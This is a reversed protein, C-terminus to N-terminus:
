NNVCILDNVQELGTKSTEKASMITSYKFINEINDDYKIDTKFTFEYAKGVKLDYTSNITVMKREGQFEKLVVENFELDDTGHISEIHYTRTFYCSSDKDHGCYAGKIDEELTDSGYYIDKNGELTNCFIISGEELKYVITGGDWLSYKEANEELYNKLTNFYFRKSELLDEFYDKKNNDQIVELKVGKQKYISFDEFEKVKIVENEKYVPTFVLSAIELKPNQINYNIIITGLLIIILISIIITIIFIKKSKKNKLLSKFLIDDYVKQRKEQKLKEGAFLEELSIGLIKCLSPLLSIDPMNKGNEWRSVSKVNVRLKDALDEQTLNNEKRLLAIFKGIKEQSM